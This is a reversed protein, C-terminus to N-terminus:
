PFSMNSGQKLKCFRAKCIHRSRGLAHLLPDLADKKALSLTLISEDDIIAAFHKQRYWCPPNWLGPAQAQGVVLVKWTWGMVELSAKPCTNDRCLTFRKCKRSWIGPNRKFGNSCLGFVRIILGHDFLRYFFATLLFFKLHHALKVFSIVHTSAVGCAGTSSVGRAGIAIATGDSGSPAPASGEKTGCILGGDWCGSGWENGCLLGWSGCCHKEARGSKAAALADELAVGSSGREGGVLRPDVSSPPKGFFALVSGTFFGLTSLIASSISDLILVMFSPSSSNNVM